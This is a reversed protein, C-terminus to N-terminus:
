STLEVWSLLTEATSQLTELRNDHMFELMFVHEQGTKKFIDIYKLWIDSGSALPYRKQTDWHFVHVNVTHNALETAAQLNYTKDHKQNPQWYMKIRPHNVTKIFDLSARWDDTLTDNHCELAINIGYGEALEGLLQAEETMSTRLKPLTEVSGTAGAWIRITPAELECATEITRKFEDYPPSHSGLRYYSGYAHILLGEDTTMRNIHRANNLDTPPVHIDGGWEIGSLGARSTASIITKPSENRFSVSVLGTKLM